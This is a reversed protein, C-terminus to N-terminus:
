VRFVSLLDTALRRATLHTPWHFDSISFARPRGFVLSVTYQRFAYSRVSVSSSLNAASARPKRSAWLLALVGSSRNIMSVLM